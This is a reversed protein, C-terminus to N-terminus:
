AVEEGAEEEPMEPAATTEEAAEDAMPAEAPTTEEMEGGVVADNQTDDM